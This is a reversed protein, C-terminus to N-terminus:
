DGEHISRVMKDYADAIATTPGPPDKMLENGLDIIVPDIIDEIDAIEDGGFRCNNMLYWMLSERAALANALIATRRRIEMEVPMESGGNEDFVGIERKLASLATKRSKQGNEPYKTSNVEKQGKFDIESPLKEQDDM